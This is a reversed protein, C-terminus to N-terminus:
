GGDMRRPLTVRVRLGGRTRTLLEIQGRHADIISKVIALGLGSGGTERNRSSELRYFPKMVNAVEEEPIGPGDDLIEVMVEQSTAHIEVEARKGYKLANDILNAFARRLSNPRCRVRLLRTQDFTVPARNGGFVTGVTEFKLPQVDTFTVPRGLDSYDDCLSQLLSAFAVVQEEERRMDDRLFDLTSAIMGSMEDLDALIKDRLAEDEIFEARLKLRTAPTRLDHSIAALMRTREELLDRVAHRGRNIWDTITRIEVAGSAPLPEPAVPDEPLAAHRAIREVPAALKRALWLIVIGLVLWLSIATLWLGVPSARAAWYRASSFELWRGEGASVYLRAPQGLRALVEAIRGFDGALSRGAPRLDIPPLDPRFRFVQAQVRLAPQADSPATPMTLVPIDIVQWQPDADPRTKLRFSLGEFHTTALRLEAEAEREDLAFATERIAVMAPGLRHASLIDAQRASLADALWWAIGM